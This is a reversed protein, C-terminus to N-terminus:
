GNRTGMARRAAAWAATSSAAFFDAFFDAFGAPLAPPRVADRARIALTTVLLPVDRRRAFAVARQGMGGSGDWRGIRCVANPKQDDFTRRVATWSSTKLWSPSEANFPSSSPRRKLRWGRPMQSKKSARTAM